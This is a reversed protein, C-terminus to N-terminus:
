VISQKALLDQEPCFGIGLCDGKMVSYRDM